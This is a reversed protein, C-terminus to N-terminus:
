IITECAQWTEYWLHSSYLEVGVHKHGTKINDESKGNQRMGEPQIAVDWFVALVRWDGRHFGWIRCIGQGVSQTSFQQQGEGTIRLESDWPVWSWIKSYSLEPLRWIMGDSCGVSSALWCTVLKLDFYHKLWHDTSWDATTDHAWKPVFFLNTNSDTTPKNM